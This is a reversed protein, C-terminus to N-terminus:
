WGRRGRRALSEDRHRALTRGSERGRSPVYASTRSHRALLQAFLTARGNPDRRNSGIVSTLQEKMRVAAADVAVVLPDILGNVGVALLEAADVDFREGDQVVDGGGRPTRHRQSGERLVAPPLM